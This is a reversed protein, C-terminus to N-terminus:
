ENSRFNWHGWPWDKWCKVLGAKVPNERIYRITKLEHDADRVFTDWYDAQWVAGSHGLIANAKRATFQKWTRVIKSLPVQDTKVLVHVHNPMIVWALLRYREGDFHRLAEAVVTAVREDKLWCAGKGLDLWAELEIRRKRDDEIKLLREWEERLESPFSDALRFTVFQILGPEDRHPVYGREHWGRFGKRQGDESPDGAIDRQRRVVERVEPRRPPGNGKSRGPANM